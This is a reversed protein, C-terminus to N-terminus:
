LVFELNEVELVPCGLNPCLFGGMPVYDTRRAVKIANWWDKECKVSKYIQFDPLSLVSFHSFSQHFRGTRRWKREDTSACLFAHSMAQTTALPERVSESAATPGQAKTGKLHHTIHCTCVSKQHQQCESLAWRARESERDEKSSDFTCAWPGGDRTNTSATLRQLTRRQWDVRSQKDRTRRETRVNYQAVVWINELHAEDGLWPVEWPAEAHM